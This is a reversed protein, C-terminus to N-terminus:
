LPKFIAELQKEIKKTRLSECFLSRWYYGHERREIYGNKLKVTIEIAYNSSAKKNIVSVNDVKDLPVKLIGLVDFTRIVLLNRKYDVSIGPFWVFAAFAINALIMITFFPYADIDGVYIWLAAFFVAMVLFYIRWFPYHIYINQKKTM